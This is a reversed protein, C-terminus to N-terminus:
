NKIERLILGKPRRYNYKYLIDTITVIFLVESSSGVFDKGKGSLSILKIVSDKKPSLM